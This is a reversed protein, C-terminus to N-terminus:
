MAESASLSFMFRTMYRSHNGWITKLWWWVPGDPVTMNAGGKRSGGLWLRSGMM